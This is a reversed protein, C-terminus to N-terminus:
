YGTIIHQKWLHYVNRLEKSNISKDVLKGQTFSKGEMSSEKCCANCYIIFSKVNGNTDLIGDHSINKDVNLFDNLTGIKKHTQIEMKKENKKVEFELNEMRKELANIKNKNEKNEEKLFQIQQSQKQIESFRM